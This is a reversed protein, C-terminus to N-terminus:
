AAKKSRNNTDPTKPDPDPSQSSADLLDDALLLSAMALLRVEGVQGFENTLADLKQRVMEALERLREEEGDNCAFRYTRGNLSVAVQGM